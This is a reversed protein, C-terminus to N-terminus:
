NQRKGSGKGGGRANGPRGSSHCFPKKGKRPRNRNGGSSSAASANGRQAQQQRPVFSSVGSRDAPAASASSARSQQQPQCKPIRPPHLAKHVLADNSAARTKSLAMDLLTPPFLASSPPLPAHRLRSLEEAPVTSRVDSLLSDRRLLVLNALVPTTQSGLFELSRAGSVMKRQFNSRTEKPLAEGFKSLTALWWDLWSVVESVGALATEFSSVLNHPIVVPQKKPESAKDLTLSSLGPPVTYPAAFLPKSTRYYGRQRKIPWPIFARSTQEDVFKDFTANVKDVLAEVLRSPPLHLDPSSEAHLGLAHSLTSLGRTPSASAPKELSHYSGILDIVSSFSDDREEEVSSLSEPHEGEQDRLSSPWFRTDKDSTSPASDVSTSPGTRHASSGDSVTLSDSPDLPRMTSDVNRSDGSEEPPPTGRSETDESESSSSSARWVPTHSTRRRKNPSSLAERRHLKGRSRSRPHRDSPDGDAASADYASLNRVTTPNGAIPLGATTARISGNAHEWALPQPRPSGGQWDARM